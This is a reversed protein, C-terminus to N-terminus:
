PTKKKAPAQDKMQEQELMQEPTMQAPEKAQPAPQAAPVPGHQQMQEPTMTSHDQAPAQTQGAPVPGHQQMQEPTMKSHDVQALAALPLLASVALAAMMLSFNRKM